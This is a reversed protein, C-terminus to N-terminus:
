KFFCKQRVASGKVLVCDSTNKQLCKVTNPQQVADPENM